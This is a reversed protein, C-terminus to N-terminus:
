QTSVRGTVPDVTAGPIRPDRKMGKPLPQTDYDYDPGAQAPPVDTAVQPGSPGCGWLSAAFAAAVRADFGSFARRMMM